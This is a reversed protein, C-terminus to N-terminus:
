LTDPSFVVDGKFLVYVYSIESLEFFPKLSIKHAVLDTTVSQVIGVVFGQPFVLGNGSSVALDGISVLKYHPIFDLELRNNNKGSSIGHGDTGVITSIKCRQDTVCAVKSYWPYVEIIRGILANKYIVIDDHAYGKNKGGDIFMVDEQACSYQLLVKALSMTECNYREQFEILERTQRIFIQQAELQALHEKLLEQYIIMGDIQRYLDDITKKYDSNNKLSKSINNHVKLFPYSFFSIVHETMGSSVFFIRNIIFLFFSIYFVRLLWFRIEQRLEM